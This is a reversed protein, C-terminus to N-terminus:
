LVSAYTSENLKYIDNGCSDIGVTAPFDEVKFRWIAETGLDEYAVVEAEKISCSILAAAGGTAVFYVSGTDVVARRVEESRYGKGIMGRLGAKNMMLPAYRDMRSSTTPGAPGVAMGPKPPCPGVYYIIQGKLDVPLAEGREITETMRKHAADRGTYITGTILVKDGVKLKKLEDGTAPVTLKILFNVGMFSLHPVVNEYSAQHTDVRM